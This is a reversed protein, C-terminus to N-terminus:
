AVLVLSLFLTPGEGWAGNILSTWLSYSSLCSSMCVLLEDQNTSELSVRKIACMENRAKCYAAQVVATAGYGTHIFCKHSLQM